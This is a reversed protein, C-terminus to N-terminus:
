QRNRGRGCVPELSLQDSLYLLLRGRQSSVVWYPQGSLARFFIFRVSLNLFHFEHCALAMMTGYGREHRLVM